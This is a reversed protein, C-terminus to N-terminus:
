KTPCICRRCNPHFHCWQHNCQIKLCCFDLFCFSNTFFHNVHELRRAYRTSPSTTDTASGSTITVGGGISGPAAGNISGASLIMAGGVNTTQGDGTGVTISIAGGSGSTATGTGLYMAGSRFLFAVHCFTLTQCSMM